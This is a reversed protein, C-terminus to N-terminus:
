VPFGTLGSVFLYGVEISWSCGRHHFVDNETRSRTRPVYRCPNSDGSSFVSPSLYLSVLLPTGLPSIVFMLHHLSVPSSVSLSIDKKICLITQLYRIFTFLNPSKLPQNPSSTPPKSHSIDSSPVHHSILEVSNIYLTYHPSSPHLVCTTCHSSFHLDPQFSLLFFPSQPRPQNTPQSTPQNTSQNISLKYLWDDLTGTTGKLWPTYFSQSIGVWSGSQGLSLVTMPFSISPIISLHLLSSRIQSTAEPQKTPLSSPPTLCGPNWNDGEVMMTWLSYMSLCVQITQPRMTELPQNHHNSLNTSLPTLSFSALCM